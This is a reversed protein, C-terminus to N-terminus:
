ADKLVIGLAWPIVALSSKTFFDLICTIGLGTFMIIAQRLQKM